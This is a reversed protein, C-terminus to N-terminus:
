GLPFRLQAPGKHIPNGARAVARAPGGCPRIGHAAKPRSPKKAHPEAGQSGRQPSRRDGWAGGCHPLSRTPPRKSTRKGKPMPSKRLPNGGPAPPRRPLEPPLSLFTSARVAGFTVTPAGAKSPTRPTDQSNAPSRAGPPVKKPSRETRLYGTRGGARPSQREQPAVVLKWRRLRIGIATACPNSVRPTRRSGTPCPRRVFRTLDICRVM